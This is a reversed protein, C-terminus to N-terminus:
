SSLASHSVPLDRNRLVHVLSDVGDGGMRLEGAAIISYDASKIRCCDRRTNHIVFRRLLFRWFASMNSPVEGDGTTSVVFIAIPAEFVQSIPLSDLSQACANFGRRKGMSAAYEAVEQFFCLLSLPPFGTKYYLLLVYYWLVVGTHIAMRSTDREPERESAEPIFRPGDSDYHSPAKLKKALPRKHFPACVLFM